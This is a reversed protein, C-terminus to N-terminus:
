RRENCCGKGLAKIITGEVFRAGAIDGRRGPITVMRWGKGGDRAYQARLRDNPHTGQALARLHEDLRASFGRGAGGATSGIYVLPGALLIYVGQRTDRRPKPKM